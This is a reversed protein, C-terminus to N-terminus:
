VSKFQISHGLRKMNRQFVVVPSYIVCSTRCLYKFLKHLHEFLTVDQIQFAKIFQSTRRVALYLLQGTIMGNYQRSILYPANIQVAKYRHRM